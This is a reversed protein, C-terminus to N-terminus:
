HIINDLESMTIVKIDKSSSVKQCLKIFSQYNDDIFDYSHSVFIFLESNPNKIFEDFLNLAELINWSTIPIDYRNNPIKFSQDIRSTRILKIGKINKIVEIPYPSYDDFPFAFTIVEKSFLSELNKKDLYVENYIEEKSLASMYRHFLSHSAIEHGDYISLNDKLILRRIETEGKYWVFDDMGSNLNFTAKLHYQNLIESSRKDYITGDDISFIFYKM